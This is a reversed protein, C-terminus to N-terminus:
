RSIDGWYWEADELRSSHDFGKLSAAAVAAAAAGDLCTLQASALSLSEFDSKMLSGSRSRM